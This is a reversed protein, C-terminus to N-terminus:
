KRVCIVRVVAAKADSPESAPTVSNAKLFARVTEAPALVAQATPTSPVAVTAPKLLVLGAFKGNADLAASGSFGPPPAPSLAPDSGGGQTVSAKVRSVASGGGQNQPDIIGVLDLSSRAAGGDLAIPKLGHAGYIRLLAIGHDKDSAIKDANGHGAVVISTCEDTVDTGTVIAGDSNVIVGTGYEVTKRPPASDAPFPDFASSMAIVVPEMTGETAQDYLITLIRAESDRLQGRVYFKKLGQMGSLVFFDPKVTSYDLKRGAPEKRESEALKATTLGADKRRTLRIRITGTASSWTTGDGDSSQQPVLRAPLGLRAGTAADTVIKWGANSRTKRAAATLAGREQPNLVGTQKGGQDRQFTKIAAILRDSVEGNILGNYHGTWALDSQLAQREAQAMASATDAPTQVAPRAPPQPKTVARGHTAAPQAEASIATTVIMLAAAIPTARM